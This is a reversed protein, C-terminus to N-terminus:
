GADFGNIGFGMMWRVVEGYGDGFDKRASTKKKEEREKIEERREYRGVYKDQGDQVKERLSWTYDVLHPVKHATNVFHPIIVFHISVVFSRCEVVSVHRLYERRAAVEGPGGM